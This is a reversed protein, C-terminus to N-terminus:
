GYATKLDLKSVKLCLNNREVSKLKLMHEEFVEKTSSKRNIDCCEKKSFGNAIEKQLDKFNKMTMSSQSMKSARDADRKLDKEECSEDYPLPSIEQYKEFDSHYIPSSREPSLTYESTSGYFAQSESQPSPVNESRPPTPFIHSDNKPFSGFTLLSTFDVSEEYVPLQQPEIMSNSLEKADIQLEQNDTAVTNDNTIIDLVDEWYTPDSHYINAVSELAVDLESFADPTTPNM